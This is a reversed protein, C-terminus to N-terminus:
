TKLMIIKAITTKTAVERLNNPNDLFAKAVLVHVMYKKQRGNISLNVRLYKNHNVFPKLIKKTKANRVKGTQSVEYSTGEIRKYAM